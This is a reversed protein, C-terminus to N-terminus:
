DIFSVKIFVTFTRRKRHKPWYKSYVWGLSKKTHRKTAWRTLRQYVFHSTSSWIKWIGNCCRHYNQWGRSKQNLSIVVNGLNPTTKILHNLQRWHSHISKKSVICLFTGNSYKRFAWGLFDFGTTINTISTKAESIKLGRLKLFGNISAKVRELQRLSQGTVIFDDAYRVM